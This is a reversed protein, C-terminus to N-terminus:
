KMTLASWDFHRARPSIRRLTTLSPIGSHTIQEMNSGHKHNYSFELIRKIARDTQPAHGRNRLSM